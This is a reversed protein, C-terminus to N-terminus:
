YRRLKRPDEEYGNSEYTRKRSDDERPRGGYGGGGSAGDRDRYGGDRPRVPEM